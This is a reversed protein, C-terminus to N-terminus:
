NVGFLGNVFEDASFPQLDEVQEGVGVYKVPIGLTDCIGIIVGGKATGDLKTLVIGTVGVEDRFIDAQQIANQGTTADLVLLTEHPAGPQAKGCVRIIKKLEDLLHKKTHLRGATDVMIVDAGEEGAKRIGDFAVSAPDQSEGGRHFTAGVRTSWIELQEGAAARFTDGAVMAVKKGEKMYRASLKGITTTKGTGNVGVVAVVHPGESVARGDGGSGGAGTLIEGVEKHLYSWVVSPDKMEARSLAAKIGSMLRAATKVGIDSTLLVEEIRDELGEDLEKRFVGALRSVFGQKRTKELGDGITRGVALLPEDPAREKVTVAREHDPEPAPATEPAEEAAEEAAEKLGRKRSWLVLVVGAIVLAAVIGLFIGETGGAEALLIPYLNM